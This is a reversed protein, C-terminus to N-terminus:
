AVKAVRFPNATVSSTGSFQATVIGSADRYADPFPGILKRAGNAVAVVIDGPVLTGYGPVVVSTKVDPITVNISSGSANAVDLFTRGTGDDVFTDSASVATLTNAVGAVTIDTVTLVAM